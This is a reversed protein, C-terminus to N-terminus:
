YCAFGPAWSCGCTQDHKCCPLPGTINCAPCRSTDTGPCQPGGGTGKGGAATTGGSGTGGSGTTMAVCKGSSLAYAEICRVACAGNECVAVGNTPPPPCSDCTPGGCGTLPQEPVCMASLTPCCKEAAGCSKSDCSGAEIPPVGGAAHGGSGADVVMRGGASIIVAGSGGEGSGGEGSGGSSPDGGASVPDGDQEVPAYNQDLGLVSACGACAAIASLLPVLVNRTMKM